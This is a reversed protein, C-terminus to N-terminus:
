AIYGKAILLAFGAGLILLWVACCAARECWDNDKTM